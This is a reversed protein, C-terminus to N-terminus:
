PTWLNELVRINQYVNYYCYNWYYAAVDRISIWSNVLFHILFSNEVTELLLLFLILSLLFSSQFIIFVQKWLVLNFAAIIIAGYIYTFLNFLLRNFLLLQNLYRLSNVKRLNTIFLLYIHHYSTRFRKIKVRNSCIIESTQSSKNLLIIISKKYM